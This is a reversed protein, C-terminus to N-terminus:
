EPAIKGLVGNVFRGSDETSLKKAIEVAENIAAGRPTEPRHLLEYVAVRLINRDLTAMRDISWHEAHEAITRDIEAANAAVGEVLEEAFDDVGRGAAQWEVLVVRPDRGTVDAQFLVDVAHRRGERRSTM